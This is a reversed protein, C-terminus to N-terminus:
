NCWAQCKGRARMCSEKLVLRWGNACIYMLKGTDKKVGKEFKRQEFTTFSANLYEM